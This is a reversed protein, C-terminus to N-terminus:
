PDGEPRILCVAPDDKKPGERVRGRGSKARRGVPLRSMEKPISRRRKQALSRHDRFGNATTTTTRRTAAPEAAPGTGVFLDGEDFGNSESPDVDIADSDYWPVASSVAGKRGGVSEALSVTSAKSNIEYPLGSETSACLVGELARGVKKM